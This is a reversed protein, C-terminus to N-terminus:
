PSAQKEAAAAEERAKAALWETEAEAAPLAVVKGYRWVLVPM